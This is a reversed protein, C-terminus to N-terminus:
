KKDAERTSSYPSIGGYRLTNEVSRGISDLDQFLDHEAYGIRDLVSLIEKKRTAPVLYRVLDPPGRLAECLGSGHTPLPHMTFTSRQARMRQFLWHPFVALPSRPLSRPEAREEDGHKYYRPGGGGWATKELREGFDILEGLPLFAEAAMLRVLPNDQPAVTSLGLRSNLSVPDLEWLEGDADPDDRAAFYLAVLVNASWDLLRTQTGHHQMWLLWEFYSDRAPLRRELSRAITKFNQVVFDEWRAPDDVGPDRFVKPQLTPFVQSHGRFWSAKRATAVEVARSVSDLISMPPGRGMRSLPALTSELEM